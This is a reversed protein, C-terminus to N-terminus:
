TELWGPKWTEKARKILSDDLTTNGAALHQLIDSRLSQPKCGNVHNFYSTPIQDHWRQWPYGNNWEEGLTVVSAGKDLLCQTHWHQEACWVDPVRMPPPYYCKAANNPAVVVGSNFAHPLRSVPVGWVQQCMQFESVFWDTNEMVALDDVMGWSGVPVSDFINPANPDVVIDTDLWLTQQWRDAIESYVYKNGCAHTQKSIDTIEVFDLGHNIAYQRMREGTHQYEQRTKEDAVLVLLARERTPEHVKSLIAPKILQVSEGLSLGDVLIRADLPGYEIRKLKRNVFNHGAVSYEFWNEFTPPNEAMWQRFSKGCDCNTPIRSLFDDVWEQTPDQKAHWEHWMTRYGLHDISLHSYEYAAESGSWGSPPSFAVINNNGM